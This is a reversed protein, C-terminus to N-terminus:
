ETITCPVTLTDLVVGALNQSVNLAITAWGSIIGEEAFTRKDDSLTQGELILEVITVRRVAEM